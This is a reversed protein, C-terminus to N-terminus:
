KKTSRRRIAIAAAGLVFLAVSGPEPVIKIIMASDYSAYMGWGTEFGSSGTIAETWNGLSGTGWGWNGDDNFISLWYNTGATVSVPASLALSYYYEDYISFIFNGTAIPVISATEESIKVGPIGVAATFLRITFLNTTALNDDYCGWWEIETVQGTFPALFDDAMCQAAPTNSYWFTVQDPPQTVGAQVALSTYLVFLIVAAVQKM